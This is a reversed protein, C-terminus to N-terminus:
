NNLKEVMVFAGWYKPSPYQNRLKQIAQYYSERFDQNKIWIKYFDVMMQKTAEDDVKWLSNLVRKAGAILFARQLGYVGEGNQIEGLGTECASLTIIESGSFDMDLVEYATLLGDENEYTNKTRLYNQANSLLLGSRLLPNDGFSQFGLSSNTNDKLFYGHTAIHLIMNNSIAKVHHEAARDEIHKIVEWKKEASLLTSLDEVETLTGPLDLIENSNFYRTLTDQVFRTSLQQTANLDYNPFGFLHINGSSNTVGKSNGLDRTGSVLVVQYKDIIYKDDPFQITNLNILNYMGDASWFIRTTSEPVVEDIYGWYQEYIENTGEDYKIYDRYLIAGEEEGDQSTELFVLKPNSWGKGIIMNVYGVNGDQKAFRLQEVAIENKNLLAQIERWSRQKVFIDRSEPASSLQKELLDIENKLKVLGDKDIRNASIQSYLYSKKNVFENYVDILEQNNSNKLLKRVGRQSLMLLGKVYLVHDYLIGAIEPKEQYSLSAYEALMDLNPRLYKNYTKQKELESLAPFDRKIQEKDLQIAELLYPTMMEYNGVEFLVKIQDKLYYSTKDVEGSFIQDRIDYVGKFFVKADSFVGRHCQLIGFLQWFEAVNIAGFGETILKQAEIYYWHANELLEKDNTEYYWALYVEIVDKYIYVAYEKKQDSTWYENASIQDIQEKVLEIARDFNKEAKVLPLELSYNISCDAMGSAKLAQCAEDLYLHAKSFESKQTHLSALYNLILRAGSPHNEKKWELIQEFIQQPRQIEGIYTWLYLARYMQADTYQVSAKTFYEETFDLMHISHEDLENRKNLWSIVGYRHLQLNWYDGVTVNKDSLILRQAEEALEYAKKFDGGYATYYAQSEEYKQKWAQGDVPNQILSISTLVLIIRYIMITEKQDM